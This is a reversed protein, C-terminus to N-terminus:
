VSFMTDDILEGPTTSEFRFRKFLYAVMLFLENEALSTGLCNRPGAGFTFKVRAINHQNAEGMFREPKFELPEDWFEEGLMSGNINQIIQSGKKIFYGKFECDESASHPIGLPVVCYRRLTERIVANTYPAIQKDNLTPNGSILAKLEDYLGEQIDPRNCVLKLLASVTNASTDVGALVLDYFICILGQKTINGAKYEALYADLIDKPDKENEESFHELREDIITEIFDGIKKNADMYQHAVATKMFLPKIFHLFDSPFAKGALTFTTEIFDVFKSVSKDEINYPYSKSFLFRFIINLSCLKIYRIPDIPQGTKAIEAFKDCLGVIEQNIAGEMKKIKIPVISKLAISRVYRNYDGNSTAINEGHNWILRSDRQFRNIFLQDNAVFAEHLTEPGTLVVGEVSGMKLRMVPGYKKYLKFIAHHPQKGLLHLHGILPLPISSPPLRRFPNM